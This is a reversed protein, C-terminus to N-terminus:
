PREEPILIVREQPFSLWVDAGAATVPTASGTTVVTLRTGEPGSRVSIETTAGTFAVAEVTGEVVAASGAATPARTHLTVDEPRIVAVAPSADAVGDPAAAVPLTLPGELRPPASRYTGHISNADGLFRAAFLSAPHRYLERPPGWQVIRGQRMLVLVDALRMAEQQDHTVLVTTIGLQRQLRRVEHQMDARVNKDLAAFPEDLLLIDPEFVLARALAVRQRQGGSLTVPRREGFGELGVRELMADVRSRLATGHLGRARLGFGVNGRVSMHSFLALDQYVFGIGRRAPDLDTVDRGGISVRGADPRLFGALTRLLTTKGCGTPGILCTLTGRPLALDLASLAATGDYSHSLGEAVLFRTDDAPPTTV